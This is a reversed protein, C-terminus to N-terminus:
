KWDTSVTFLSIVLVGSDIWKKLGINTALWPNAIQEDEKLSLHFLWYLPKMKMQQVRHLNTQDWRVQTQKKWKTYFFVIVVNIVWIASLTTAVCTRFCFKRNTSNCYHFKINNITKEVFHVSHFTLLIHHVM